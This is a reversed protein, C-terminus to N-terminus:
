RGKTLPLNAKEWAMVGGSLNYVKEFGHRRLIKCAQMSRQGSRCNCIIGKDKYKDLERLRSELAGLPINVANGIHGEKYEKDLREDVVQADESNMLKIAEMPQLERVGTLRAGLFSRLLLALVFILAAFLIWQDVVFDLFQEM